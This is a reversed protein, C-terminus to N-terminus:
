LESARCEFGQRNGCDEKGGHIVKQMKRLEKPAVQLFHTKVILCM